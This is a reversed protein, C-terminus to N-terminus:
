EAHLKELKKTDQRRATKVQSTARTIDAMKCVHAGKGDADYTCKIGGKPGVLFALFISTDFWRLNQNSVSFYVSGSEFVEVSFVFDGDHHANNMRTTVASLVEIQNKTLTSM